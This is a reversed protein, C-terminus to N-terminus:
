GVLGAQGQVYSTLVGVLVDRGAGVLGDRVKELRTRADADSTTAIRDELRRILDLYADDSPWVGAVRLGRENLRPLSLAGADGGFLGGQSVFYVGDMRDLALRVEKPTLDLDGAVKTPELVRVDPHDALWSLLPVEVREWTFRRGDDDHETM